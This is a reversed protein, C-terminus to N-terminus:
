EIEVRFDDEALRPVGVVTWIPRHDPMYRDLNRTMAAMAEDNLSVHYSNIHFVQSWGQGGANKLCLEVNAFAQDIQENIEAQNYGFRELNQQGKGEYAYYTLQSM